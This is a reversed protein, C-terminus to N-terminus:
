CLLITAKSQTSPPPKILEVSQQSEEDIEVKKLIQVQLTTDKVPNVKSKMSPTNIMQVLEQFIFLKKKSKIWIKKSSAFHKCKKIQIYNRWTSLKSSNNM